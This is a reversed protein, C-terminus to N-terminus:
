WLKLQGSEGIYELEHHQIRFCPSLSHPEATDSRIIHRVAAGRLTLYDSIYRRHCHRWDAEACMFAVRQEATLALLRGIAAEFDQTRMHEAYGRGATEESHEAPVQPTRMGGLPEEHVYIMDAARIAGALAPKNFQPLRRSAPYRRVDVLASIRWGQLLELLQEITRNSHGISYITIEQQSRPESM